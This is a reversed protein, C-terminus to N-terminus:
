SYQVPRVKRSRRSKRKRKSKRSSKRISPARRRRRRRSKKTSKGHSRRSRQSLQTDRNLILRPFGIDMQEVRVARVKYERRATGVWSIYKSNIDVGEEAEEPSPPRVTVGAGSAKINNMVSDGFSNAEEPYLRQIEDIVGRHTGIKEFLMKKLNVTPMSVTSSFKVKHWKGRIVIRLYGFLSVKVIEHSNMYERLTKLEKTHLSPHSRLSFFVLAFLKPEFRGMDQRKRITGDPDLHTWDVDNYEDDITHWEQGYYHGRFSVGGYGALYTGINKSLVPSGFVRNM